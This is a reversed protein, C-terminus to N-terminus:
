LDGTLKIIYTDHMHTHKRKEWSTSWVTSTKQTPGINLDKGKGINLADLNTIDYKRLDSIILLYM